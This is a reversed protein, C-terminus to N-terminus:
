FRKDAGSYLPALFLVKLQFDKVKQKLRPNVCNKYDSPLQATIKVGGRMVHVLYFSLSSSHKFTEKLVYQHPSSTSTILPVIHFAKPTPGGPMMKLKLDM